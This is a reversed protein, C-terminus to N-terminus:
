FDMGGGMGPGGPMGGGMPADKKPAEAIMAETTILLGAVSAADQIATRVVKTPDIIGAKVMDVYSGTQADYGDNYGKAEVLKGVIVAADDGANDIIQRAPTTLAKKVIEIGIKQDENAPKLKGIAGAARLLAIGGGPLVGEEVAARTANLADDVRDKKEKVEIETSGGVRIVAVGGALKALREQLKERDYDSTTEEIQAKIQAVRGEIDKKKGAGDVVTTNEKEIRVKKARGLDKLTINELKIGLDESIMTGNTLIAIDELMAKRRDGFGPAKVAAVKLGGRLKNVVLTALAEGEVDEAIILLPKGTQVVSELIPLMPQLSSLKKEFILIYPDELDAVMKEANTIFYPSLYGRDFQMGEVVDLETEATKAEEVTIVGENGVKQMAEAIMKGVSADGNASITGVQAVESNSTVKKSNKKLDAVVAEVAMDIGRKLDMPNMGAAVAKAGERVISQALVTATTTGDGAADNQKSAVERVMQAGMNEFKDALEIEKAVTVGDKTIRPAGFSKEIVVNRGKPGLTVKVANALIDVGRLMKDRADSSFRVDKAAM